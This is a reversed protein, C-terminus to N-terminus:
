RRGRALVLEQMRAQRLRRAREALQAETLRDGGLMARAQALYGAWQRDRAPQTAARREEETAYKAWRRAQGLKGIARARAPDLTM